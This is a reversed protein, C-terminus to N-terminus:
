ELLVKNNPVSPYRAGVITLPELVEVLKDLVGSPMALYDGKEIFVEEDGVMIRARGSLVILYEKGHPHVHLRDGIDGIPFSKYYIELNDDRFPSDSPFFHGVLWGRMEKGQIDINGKVITTM